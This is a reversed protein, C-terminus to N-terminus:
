TASFRAQKSPLPSLYRRCLVNIVAPTISNLLISLIDVCLTIFNPNIVSATM